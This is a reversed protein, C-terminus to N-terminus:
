FRAPRKVRGDDGCRDKAIRDERDRKSRLNFRLARKNIAKLIDDLDIDRVCKGECFVCDTSGITSPRLDMTDSLGGLM